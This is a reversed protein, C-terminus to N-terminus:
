IVREQRRRVERQELFAQKYAKVKKELMRMGQEYHLQLEVLPQTEDITARQKVQEARSKVSDM